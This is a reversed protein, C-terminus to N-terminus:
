DYREYYERLAKAIDTLKLIETKPPTTPGIVIEEMKSDIARKEEGDHPKEKETMSQKIERYTDLLKNSLGLPHGFEKVLFNNREFYFATDFSLGFLDRVKLSIELMEVKISQQLAKAKSCLDDIDIKTNIANIVDKAFTMKIKQLTEKQNEEQASFM